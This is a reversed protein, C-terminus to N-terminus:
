FTSAVIWRSTSHRLIDPSRERIRRISSHPLRQPQSGYRESPRIPRAGSGGAPRSQPRAKYRPAPGDPGQRPTARFLRSRGWHDTILCAAATRDAQRTSLATEHCCHHYPNIRVLTRMGRHRDPPTLLRQALQLYASTRRLRLLQHLPRRRPRLPGPRGSAGAAQPVHQGPLQGGGPFPDQVDLRLQSRPYPQQGRAIRVLVVRVVGPRDRDGRQARGGAALDPGIVM